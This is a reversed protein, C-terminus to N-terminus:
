HNNDFDSSADSAYSDTFSNILQVCFHLLFQSFLDLIDDRECRGKCFMAIPSTNEQLIFVYM